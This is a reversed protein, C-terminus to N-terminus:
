LSGDSKLCEFNCTNVKYCIRQGQVGVSFAVDIEDSGMEATTMKMMVVKDM